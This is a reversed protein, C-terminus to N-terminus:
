QFPVTNGATDKPGNAWARQRRTGDCFLYWEDDDNDDDNDYGYDNDNDYNNSSNCGIWCFCQLKQYQIVRQSWLNKMVM